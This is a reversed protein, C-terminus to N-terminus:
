VQRGEYLHALRLPAIRKQELLAVTDELQQIPDATVDVVLIDARRVM